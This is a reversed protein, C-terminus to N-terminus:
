KALKLAFKVGVENGVWETDRWEGQGVGFDLRKIRATGKLWAGGKDQEFTFDVPVDRTVNRLTLKGAAIYKGAGSATFREATYRATPHQQVAFLDPGRIIEDRESDRSNVSALDITVDFRSAALSEPDFTIQATFKEFVGEFDAGAQNGIFTLTSEKPQMRWSTAALALAALLTCAFVGLFRRMCRIEELREDIM